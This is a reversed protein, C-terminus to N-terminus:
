SILEHDHGNELVRKGKPTTDDTTDGADAAPPGATKPNSPRPLNFEDLIENEQQLTECHDRVDVGRDALVGTLTLLGSELGLLQATIEKQPDIYPWGRPRWYPKRVSEYEAATIDLKGSAMAALLWEDYVPRCFHLIVFDQLIRWMEREEALGVRASSYNVAELDGALSFYNVGFSGALRHVLTKEYEAYNAQPQKPDFQKFDYGPPLEPMAMPRWDIEPAQVNGEDDPSGDFGGNEDDVPPVLFGGAMATVKASNLVAKCYENHNKGELLGAHFWTVGRVQSDDDVVLFAHIVDKAEVRVRGTPSQPQFITDTAIPTLWYAVPRDNADVEVSMLVRNGNNLRTNFLEDLYAPDIFKLQFGWPGTRHKVVLVEGDRLFTRVFLRQQAALDVKGTVSCNNPDSGWEWFAAKVRDNLDANLKNKFKGTAKKGRPDVQIGQQGVINVEAMRLFKSFLSGDRCMQRARARLATLSVYIEYNSSTTTMTWDSNGRNRNAAGYSRTHSSRRRSRERSERVKGM